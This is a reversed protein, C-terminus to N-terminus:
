PWFSIALAGGEAELSGFGLHQIGLWADFVNHYTPIMATATCDAGANMALARAQIAFQDVGPIAHDEVADRVGAHLGVPLAVLAATLLFRIM